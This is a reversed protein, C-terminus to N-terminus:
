EHSEGGRSKTKIKWFSWRSKKHINTKYSQLLHWAPYYRQRQSAEPMWSIFEDISLYINNSNTSDFRYNFTSNLTM